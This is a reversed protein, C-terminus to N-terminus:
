LTNSDYGADLGYHISQTNMHSCVAVDLVLVMVWLHDRVKPVSGLAQWQSPNVSGMNEKGGM